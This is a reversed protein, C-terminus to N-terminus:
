HDRRHGRQLHRVPEPRQRPLAGRRHPRHPRRHEEPGTRRDIEPCLVVFEDGGLRSITDSRRAIRTLRRGIETLVLDGADHGFSDNIEKFNDLDVFLVALRSRRREMAALAQALRDMLALRNALGTLPDHLAQYALAREAQIQATIDRSIGFTGIIQGNEDRLPMKTTSVWTSARDSFTEQEVKAAVPQGTAIIRQEDALAACAHESSFVDFDTQGALEGATRDPAYAALWGSSVLLFRSERDKFYVREEAASLLNSMCTLMLERGAEDAALM